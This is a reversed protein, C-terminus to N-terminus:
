MAQHLGTDLRVAAASCLCIQPKRLMHHANTPGTTHKSAMVARFQKIQNRMCLTDPLLLLAAEKLSFQDNQKWLLLTHMYCCATWPVMM